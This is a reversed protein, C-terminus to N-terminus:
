GIGGIQRQQINKPANSVFADGAYANEVLFSQYADFSGLNVSQSNIQSHSDISASVSAVDTGIGHGGIGRGQAQFFDASKGVKGQPPPSIDEEKNFPNLGKLKDMLNSPSLNEFLNPGVEQERLGKTLNDMKGGVGYILANLPDMEAM